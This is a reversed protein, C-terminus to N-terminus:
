ALTHQSVAVSRNLRQYLWILGLGLAAIALLPWFIFSLSAGDAFLRILLTFSALWAVGFARVITDKRMAIPLQRWKRSILLQVGVFVSWLEVALWVMLWPAPEDNIAYHSPVNLLALFLAMGGLAIVSGLAILTFGKFKELEHASTQELTETDMLPMEKKM